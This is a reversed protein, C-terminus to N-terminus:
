RPREIMTVIASNDLDGGDREVLRAIQSAAARFAPLDLGAESALHSITAIDKLHFRAKGGPVFDHRLMRPGQVDLIPSAAYGAMMVDRMQWPDLGASRALVLAEAVAEHTAMVVLQNCAKAIQGAGVPGCHMVVGAIHSLVPRAIEVYEVPGGLMIALQGSEAGGVGGSVPGDLFGVQHKSLEVGLERAEEPSITSTDVLLSGASAGAVLGREGFAISRVAAADPLSTVIVRAKRAVDAPDSAIDAGHEAAEELARPTHNWAVVHWGGRLLTRGIAGGMQGLGILGVTGLQTSTRTVACELADAHHM